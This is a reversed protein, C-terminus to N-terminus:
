MVDKGMANAEEMGKEKGKVDATLRLVSESHARPWKSTSSPMRM